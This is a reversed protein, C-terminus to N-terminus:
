KKGKKTTIVIVGNKGKEGYTDKAAKDKLVQISSIDDPDVKKISQVTKGDVVILPETGGESGADRVVYTIGTSKKDKGTIYVKDAAKPAVTYTGNATVITNTSATVYVKNRFASKAYGEAKVPAADSGSVNKTYVTVEPAEDSSSTSSSGSVGSGASVAAPAVDSSAATSATAMNRARALTGGGMAKDLREKLYKGKDSDDTTIFLVEPKDLMFDVFQKADTAPVMDLSKVKDPDLAKAEERTAKAGNIVFEVSDVRKDSTILMNKKGNKSKGAYITDANFRTKIKQVPNTKEAIVVPHKIPRDDSSITVSKIASSLSSKISNLGKKAIDAKSISFILLLAVVIPAVLIYRGLKIRSSRKTNMMIIRKKITSINFNNVITNPTGAMSVNLLSYQYQKSDIGKELIKRDTIFEINERVAKKMLWVGPNFWYFVTSLEALLIDLTHWQNVHVQEHELVKELDAPALTRPNVFISQWFSFPSVDGEILRVPRDNVHGPTSHRYLRYLSFLQVGLRLAFVIAGVWFVVEAWQWYNPQNLPMAFNEAPTKWQLIVKQVPAALQQHRKLFGNVNIFPYITSFLIATVLYIRNLTYFTLHRLVLYYGLCFLVLAINVKFLFTFLAPM